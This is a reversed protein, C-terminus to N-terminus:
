RQWALLASVTLESFISIIRQVAVVVGAMVVPDDVGMPLPHTQFFPALILAAVLERAGFGAPILTAFGLVVAM